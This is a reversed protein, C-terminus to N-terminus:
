LLYIANTACPVHTDPGSPFQEWEIAVPEPNSSKIATLGRESVLVGYISKPSPESNRLDDLALQFNPRDATPIVHSVIEIRDWKDGIHRVLRRRIGIVHSQLAGAAIWTFVVLVGVGFPPGAGLTTTAATFVIAGVGALILFLWLWKRM